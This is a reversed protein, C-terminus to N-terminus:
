RRSRQLDYWAEEIRKLNWKIADAKKRLEGSRLDFRLFEGFLADVFERIRGVGDADARGALMVARRELEGTLDCLGLLYDEDSAGPTTRLRGTRVYGLFTAAEVYEQMAAHYAGHQTNEKSRRLPTLITRAERVLQEARPLDDRHIAHIAQKSARLAKRTQAIVHERQEESRELRKRIPSFITDLGKM